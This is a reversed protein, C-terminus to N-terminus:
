LLFRAITKNFVNVFLSKVRNVMSQKLMEFVMSFISASIVRSKLEKPNLVNLWQNAADGNNKHM